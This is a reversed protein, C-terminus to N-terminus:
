CSYSSGIKDILTFILKPNTESGLGNIMELISETM